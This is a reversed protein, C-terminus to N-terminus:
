TAAEQRHNKKRMVAYGGALGCGAAVLSWRYPHQRVEKMAQARAEKLSL